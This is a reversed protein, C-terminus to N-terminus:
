KKLKVLHSNVIQAKFRYGTNVNEVTIYEGMKGSQRAKVMTTVKIGGVIIEAQVEDGARIIDPMNLYYTTLIGGRPIPAKIVGYKVMPTDLDTIIEGPYNSLGRYDLYFDDGTVREGISLPRKAVYVQHKVLVEFSLFIRKYVLDDIKILTQLTINGIEKGGKTFEYEIIYDRDPLLIEPPNHRLSIITRDEPYELLHNLYEKADEVLKERSLKRSKTKVLIRNPCDLKIDKLSFDENKLHLEIQARQIQRAYGPLVAKGLRISKLEELKGGKIGTITAIEGLTIWNSSIGIEEPITIRVSEARVRVNVLLFLLVLFLTLVINLGKKVKM